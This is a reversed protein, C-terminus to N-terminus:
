EFIIIDLKDNWLPYGGHLWNINTIPLGSDTTWVFRKFDFNVVVNYRCNGRSVSKQAAESKKFQCSSLLKTRNLSLFQEYDPQSSSSSECVADCSPLNEVKQAYRTGNLIEAYVPDVLGFCDYGFLRNNRFHFGNSCVFDLKPILPM